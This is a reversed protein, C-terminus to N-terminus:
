IGIAKKLGEVILGSGISQMYPDHYLDKIKEILSDKISQPIENSDIVAKELAKLVDSADGYGKNLMYEPQTLLLRGQATLRAGAGGAYKSLRVYRQIELMDLYDLIEQNSIKLSKAIEDYNAFRTKEVEYIFRLINLEIEEMCM